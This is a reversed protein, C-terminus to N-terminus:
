LRTRSKRIAFAYFICNTARQVRKPVLTDSDASLGTRRRARSHASLPSQSRAGCAVLLASTDALSELSLDTAITKDMAPSVVDAPALESLLFAEDSTRM